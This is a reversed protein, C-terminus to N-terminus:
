KKVTKNIYINTSILVLNAMFFYKFEFDVIEKKKKRYKDMPEEADKLSFTVGEKPEKGTRKINKSM